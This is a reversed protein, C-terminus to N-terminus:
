IRNESNQKHKIRKKEYMVLDAVSLLERLKEGDRPFQSHGFTLGLFEILGITKKKSFQELRELFLKYDDDYYLIIFEDGSIRYFNDRINSFEKLIDESFTLLYIDGTEHGYKDNIQKFYDLDMYILNFNRQQELIDQTDQILCKRNRLNTLSDTLSIKALKETKKSLFISLHSEKYSFVVLIGIILFTALGLYPNYGTIISYNIILLLLFWLTSIFLFNNFRKNSINSLVYLFRSKMFRLFVYYTLTHLVTQSIFVIMMRNYNSFLLAIQNAITFILMTYIWTSFMIVLIEKPKQKSVFKLPFYFLLGILIFAGNGTTSADTFIYEGLLSVMAFIFITTFAYVFIIQFNSRRKQLCMYSSFLNIIVMEFSVLFAFVM